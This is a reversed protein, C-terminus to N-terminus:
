GIEESTGFTGQAHGPRRAHPAVAQWYRSFRRLDLPEQVAVFPEIPLVRLPLNEALQRSIVAFRPSPSETTVIADAGHETAFSLVVEAVDGRFIRVPLELLCETIFVIRKLSLQYTALLEDDWVFLAPAGPCAQLAPNQPSLCDGHVWIIPHTPPIM